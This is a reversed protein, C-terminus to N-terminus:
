EEIKFQVPLAVRVRVKYGSQVGPIWKPMGKVVRIVEETCGGGIDRLVEIDTISGDAEITMALVVTGEIGNERAAQPYEVHEALYRMLAKDGGPFKPPVEVVQFVKKEEKAPPPAAKPAPPPPAAEEEEEVPPGVEIDLEIVAEEYDPLEAAGITDGEVTEKGPDVKKLEEQTPIVETEPVEADPKVVPPLFKKKAIKTQKVVRPRREAPPPEPVAEVPPPASLQSYGVVKRHEVKLTKDSATDPGPASLYKSLAFLGVILVASIIFSLVMYWGQRRHLQYAGYQKNKSEFILDYYSSKNV